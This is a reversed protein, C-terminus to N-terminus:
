TDRGSLRRIDLLKHSADVTLIFEGFLGTHDVFPRLSALPLQVRRGDDAFAVVSTASGRYYRQLEIAPLALRVRIDEGTM